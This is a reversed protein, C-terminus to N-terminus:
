RSLGDPVTEVPSAVALGVACESRHAVVRIRWSAAVLWYTARRWPSAFFRFSIM